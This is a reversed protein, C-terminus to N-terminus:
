DEQFQLQGAAFNITDGSEVTKPATLAGWFLLDGASAANFIGVATVVGWLASATPFVISNLNEVVNGTRSWETNDNTVAVRAYSGGAVETGGGADTPNATYLGVYLTAESTYTDLGFIVDLIAAELFDSKGAM